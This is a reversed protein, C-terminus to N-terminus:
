EFIRDLIETTKYLKKWASSNLRKFSIRRPKKNILAEQYLFIMNEAVSKPSFNEQVLERSRRGFARRKEKNELLEVVKQAFTSANASVQYGNEGEVVMGKYASDRVVVFPLGSAAAELLVIGQTETRSTFLFIEADAYALAIKKQEIRGPFHVRDNLGLKQAYNKIHQAEDGDGVIVLHSDLEKETIKKFADLLFLFNKEKGLRGVSLLIPSDEPISCLDHLYGKEIVTFKEPYIFNPVVAIPKKVGYSLLEKKMKYSPSVVVDCINASIRLGRAAMSPTIVKGNLLYHVYRAMDTHFTMFFPVGKMKALQYGLLSFFGNGHAHIIDFDRPQIQTLYHHPLLFPVHVGPDTSLFRFSKLRYVDKEHDEYDEMKPAFIYVTHGLARMEKAFHEVSVTVGNLMPYYTDAFFAIKM